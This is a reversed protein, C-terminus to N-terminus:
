AFLKGGVLRGGDNKKALDNTLYSCSCTFGQIEHTLFSVKVCSTNSLVCGKCLKNPADRKKRLPIWSYTSSRSPDWDQWRRGSQNRGNIDRPAPFADKRSFSPIARQRQPRHCKSGANSLSCRRHHGDSTPNLLRRPRPRSLSFGGGYASTPPFM